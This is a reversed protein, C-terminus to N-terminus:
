GGHPEQDEALVSARCSPKSSIPYFFLHLRPDPLGQQSYADSLVKLLHEEGGQPATGVLILRRVREPHDAVLQQAIMGGLSYDLFDVQKLGLGTIFDEADLAMQSVNDPTKGSSKGVGANDFVVVRRDRALGNVVAPDWGDMTGSFHQLLILPIGPGQGINQYAFRTGNVEVFETAATELRM